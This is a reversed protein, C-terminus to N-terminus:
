FYVEAPMGIKLSGDNKVTVKAAYVLNKREEKTQIIKPTFEAKDSLWILKGSYEKMGEGYDIAVKVKDGIRVQSLQTESIYIRLELENVDAIKFLPKGFATFESEEAYKTLVIGNVPSKIFCKNISNDIQSLRAKMVPIEALLGKNATSINNRVAVIQKEIVEIQGRIDDLQKGTAAGAENLNLIREEERKLNSLQEELVEIDAQVNRTKANISEIGANLEIRKLHLDTTDIFGIIQENVLKDGENIDFKIIKGNGESSVIIENAEFNGYADPTLKENNCASLILLTLIFIMKQIM